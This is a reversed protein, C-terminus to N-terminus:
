DPTFHSHWEDTVNEAGSTGFADRVFAGMVLVM